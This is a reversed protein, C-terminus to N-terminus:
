APTELHRQANTAAATNDRLKWKENNLVLRPSQRLYGGFCIRVRCSGDIKM